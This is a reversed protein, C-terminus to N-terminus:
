KPLGAEFSMEKQDAIPKKRNRTTQACDVSFGSNDGMSFLPLFTHAAGCVESFSIQM